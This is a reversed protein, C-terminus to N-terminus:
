TLNLSSGHRGVIRIIHGAEDTEFRYAALGNEMIKNLQLNEDFLYATDDTQRVCYFGEENKCLTYTTGEGKFSGDAEKKFPTVDGTPVAFYAYEEDMSLLYNLEYSWKKGLVKSFSDRQSDYMVTFHLDDKGYDELWTYSWLFAGTLANVPDNGTYSPKGDPYSNSSKRGALGSVAQLGTRVIAKASFPSSGAGNNARVSHGHPTNAPFAHCVACVKGSSGGGTQMTQVQISANQPAARRVSRRSKQAISATENEDGDEVNIFNEGEKVNYIKGDLEIDYDTADEVTDFSIEISNISAKATINKPTEPVAAPTTVSGQYPEESQVYFNKAIVSYFYETKPELDTIELSTNRTSYDEAGFAIEYSSAGAVPDFTIAASRAQAEVHVGTPKELLTRIKPVSAYSSVGAANKARVSCYYVSNPSLGEATFTPETVSYTVRNFNIDYGAARDVAEWRLTFSRAGASATIKQPVKPPILPTKVKKAASYAGAGGANVARVQYSYETEPELRGFQCSSATTHCRRDGLLVDYGTAGNVPSWSVTVSVGSVSANVNVPAAPPNPITEVTGAASYSSSGFANNSRVQYNYKTGPNLGTVTRSTGNVRYTTGNMLLDYSTAGTVANWSITASNRAATGKPAAPPNPTTAATLVSGYSSTGYANKVRVKCDYRVNPKLGTLTKSTGTLNNYERGGFSLDYGTAGSVPSWSATATNETTKVTVSPAKPTTYITAARSYESTGKASKARLQYQYATNPNLGTVEKYNLTANYVTGNFLLDYSAVSSDGTWRVMVSKETAQATIGVPVAPPKALTKITKLSSYSGAGDASRACVQYKYSTEAILGSFTRSTPSAALFYEKGSFLVTYGAAGAVANWSVTVTNQTATATIGTPVSPATTVTMVSTYASMADANKARIQFSYARGATLGSFTKSTASVGSLGYTSGNFLIDYGTAGSVANWSITASNATASKKIGSPVAPTKVKTTIYGTASYAGTKSANKARVAYSHATKAALGSFTRSTGTTSYVKNDFLIDYGTAYTVKDFSVTVSIVDATARVNQPVALPQKERYFGSKILQQAGASALQMSRSDYAVVVVKYMTNDELNARSTYSTTRLNTENYIAVRKGSATYMYATYRAAGAIASWFATISGNDNLILKLNLQQM